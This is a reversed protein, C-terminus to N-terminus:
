QKADKIAQGLGERVSKKIQEFAEGKGERLAKRLWSRPPQNAKGYELVSAYLGVRVPAGKIIKYKNVSKRKVMVGYRLSGRYKKLSYSGINKALTGTGEQAIAKVNESAKKKIVDAGSKLSKRLVKREMSRPLVGLMKKIEEAGKIDAKVDM